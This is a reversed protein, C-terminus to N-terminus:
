LKRAEQQAKSPNKDVDKAAERLQNRKNIDRAYALIDGNFKPADEEKRKETLRAASEKLLAHAIEEATPSGIRIHYRSLFERIAEVIKSIIGRSEESEFGGREALEALYEDAAIHKEGYLELLRKQESEPLVDFLADMLESHKDGLMEKVGKHAVVEHFFTEQIDEVGTANPLYIHVEGDVYWGKALGDEAANRATANQITEPSYHVQVPTHFLESLRGVESELESFLSNVDESQSLAEQKEPLESSNLEVGADIVYFNGSLSKLVNRPRLDSVVYKGNSYEAEKEGNEFGMSRMYGDIEEPTAFNANPVFDQKLIPYVAGNKFGAFGFLSYATNPFLQNHLDIRELLSLINNKHLSLNNVKYVSGERDNYYVDNEMGSPFPAGLETLNALPVWRGNKKAFARAAEAIEQESIDGKDTQANRISAEFGRRFPDSEEEMGGDREPLTGDHRQSVSKSVENISINTNKDIGRSELEEREEASVDPSISKEENEKPLSLDNETINEQVDEKKVDTVADESPASEQAKEHNKLYEQYIGIRKDIGKIQSQMDARKAVNGETRMKSEVEKRKKGLAIIAARASEVAFEEGHERKAYVLAQEDTLKASDIEGSKKRPFDAYVDVEEQSAPEEEVEAPSEDTIEGDGSVDSTEDVSEQKEDELVGLISAFPVKTGDELVILGEGQYNFSDAVVGKKKAGDADTYLIM